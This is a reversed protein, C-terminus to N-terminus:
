TRSSWWPLIRFLPDLPGLIGLGWTSHYFHFSSSHDLMCLMKKEGQSNGATVWCEPYGKWTWHSSKSVPASRRLTVPRHNSPREQATAGVSLLLIIVNESVSRPEKPVRPLALSGPDGSLGAVWRQPLFLSPLPPPLKPNREKM